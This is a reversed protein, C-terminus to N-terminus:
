SNYCLAIIVVIFFYSNLTLLIYTLILKFEANYNGLAIM